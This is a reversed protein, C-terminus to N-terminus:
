RLSEPVQLEIQKAEGAVLQFTGLSPPDPVPRCRNPGVQTYHGLLVEVKGPPLGPCVFTGDDAIHVRERRAGNQHVFQLTPRQWSTYSYISQSREPDHTPDLAQVSGAPLLVGRLTSGPEVEVEIPGGGGLQVRHLTTTVDPGTVRLVVEDRGAVRVTTNGQADCRAAALLKPGGPPLVNPAPRETDATIPSVFAHPENPKDDLVEVRAGAAPKGAAGTFRVQVVHPKTAPLRVVVEEGAGEIAVLQWESPVLRDSRPVVRVHWDGPRLECRVRGDRWTGSLRVGDRDHDPQVCYVNCDEVPRGDADHVVVTVHEAAPLTLQLEREGLEAAGLRVWGDYRANRSAFLEVPSATDPEPVLTFRGDRRTTSWTKELNVRLTTGGLPSGDTDVLRGEIARDPLKAVVLEIAEPTPLTVTDPVDQADRGRVEVTFEGAPLPDDLHVYGDIDTRRYGSRELWGIPGGPVRWADKAEAQEVPKLYVLVGPQLVGDTDVVRVRPRVGKPLPIDGYDIGGREAAIHFSCHSFWGVHHAHSAYVHYRARDLAEFACPLRFVFRFRGDAGTTQEPPDTWDGARWALDYGTSQRASLRVHCRVLPEGSAEDVLRGQVVLVDTEIPSSPQPTDQGAALTTSLVVALVIGEKRRMRRLM